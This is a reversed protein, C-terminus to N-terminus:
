VKKFEIVQEVRADLGECLQRVVNLSVPEERELKKYAASTTIRNEVLSKKAMGRSALTTWLPEYSLQLMLLAERATFKDETHGDVTLTPSKWYVVIDRGVHQCCDPKERATKKCGTINRSKGIGSDYLSLQRAAGCSGWVSLAL